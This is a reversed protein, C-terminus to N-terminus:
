TSSNKEKKKVYTKGDVVVKKVEMQKKKLANYERKLMWSIESTATICVIAFLFLAIIFFILPTYDSSNNNMLWLVDLISSLMFAILTVVVSAGMYTPFGRNAEIEKEIKKLRRHLGDSNGIQAREWETKWEIQLENLRKTRERFIKSAIPTILAYIALILGAGTISSVLFTSVLSESLM